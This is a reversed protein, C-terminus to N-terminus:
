QQKCEEQKPDGTPKMSPSTKPTTKKKAQAKGKGKTKPPPEDDEEEDEDTDDEEEDDEDYDDDEEDPAAEGTYWRIAFPIINDRLALGVEYDNNMLTEIMDDDDDDGDDDEDDGYFQRAEDLMDESLKMGLELQRHFNRFFSPRPEEKEKGKQKQKKAGGGKVKKQIREVTVNKGPKWEIENVLIKKTDLDGQYPNDEETHYEKWLETNTFYPNESFTFLLKFGKNPDDESLMSKEIDVLYELVPEDWKQIQDEFAPHHQMAKLWFGKLAPTGYNEGEGEAKTLLSRREDLFPKQKATYKKVLENVEREYEKEVELYKDDIAKLEKVIPTDEPAEKTKDEEEEADIPAM